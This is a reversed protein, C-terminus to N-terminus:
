VTLNVKQGIGQNQMAANRAAMGAAESAQQTSVASGGSQILKNALDRQTELAGQVNASAIGEM